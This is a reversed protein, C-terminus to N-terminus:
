RATGFTNPASPRDNAEPEEHPPSTPDRLAIEDGARLGDLVVVRGLGTAGVTIEVAEFGNGTARYVVTRGDVEVVAQRPVTIASPHESLVVEAHVSQGPKMTEPDTHELELVSRFYQVPSGRRRAQAIPDVSKVRAAYMVEPHAEIVVTAPQGDALGGADAELVYVEAELRSLDPITAIPYGPYVPDGVKLTEAEWGGRHLIVIGAHPARLELSDLGQRAHDIKVDAKRREIALLELDTRGLQDQIRKTANANDARQRALDSDIESEIIEMRSYLQNDKAQFREAVELAQRSISADRDLKRLTGERDTASKQIRADAIEGEARGEELDRQYETPDFRAIVDGEEVESGDAILWAVLHVRWVQQLAMTIPTSRAAILEGDATVRHVWRGPQICVTPVKTDNRSLGVSVAVVGGLVGAILISARDLRSM